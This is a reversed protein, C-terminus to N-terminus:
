GFSQSLVSALSELQPTHSAERQELPPITLLFAGAGSTGSVLSVVQGSPAAETEGGQLNLRSALSSISTPDPLHSDM